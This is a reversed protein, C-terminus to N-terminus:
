QAGGRTSAPLSGAFRWTARYDRPLTQGTLRARVLDVPMSGGQLVADHFQRDTMKGSEVLERHMARFQLGGIMYALQYLPAYSGNFSRRVEATANAREHGVRDVLLDIAEQPSMTGLHFRLSFIIRAARHSRWFLMGVRDEPTKPFGLDWLLMEWYLAWGEGWFPTAFAQRHANYRQTMFQQLHHGPILEHHVTARSFHPNNGRMSMMKDDFTMADTPYSVRIVEGGLFFPSVKQAEATMMEMRWTEKALPPVTVLGRSEVFDTAEDALDRILDPQKGPEVYTEKVKELAGKWNDGFGMDRAAKRMEAECWAFEREAIALLEEPTYAIFQSQLDARLAASGIPYGIIPDDEGEKVGVVRERVTKVYRKLLSDAQRDPNSLWWTFTPDYGAYYKYWADLTTRVSEITQAARLGVIKRMRASDPTGAGESMAPGVAPAASAAASGAVAGDAPAADARTATAALSDRRPARELRLRLSDVQRAVASLMRAAKQPDIPDLRRRAEHLALVQDAFPVLAVVQAAITDERALQALESGLKADLLTYDIRGEKGLKGFDVERLRSRWGQYFDRMRRRRESSSEADYRRGLAARDASYLQVVDALDSGRTGVRGVVPTVAAAPRRAAGQTPRAGGAVQARLLTPALFTAALLAIACRTAVGTTAVGTAIARRESEHSTM